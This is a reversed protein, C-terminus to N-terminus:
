ILSPCLVNYNIKLTYSYRCSLGTLLSKTVHLRTNM